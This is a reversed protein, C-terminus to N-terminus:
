SVMFLLIIVKDLPIAGTVIIYVLLRAPGCSVDVGGLLQVQLRWM